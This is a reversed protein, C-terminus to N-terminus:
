RGQGAQGLLVSSARGPLRNEGSLKEKRFEAPLYIWGFDPALLKERFATVEVKDRMLGLLIGARDIEGVLVMGVIRNDKLVLKKYLRKERDLVRLVQYSDDAPEYLGASVIPLNFYKLSNMAIGGPYETELGAMNYGAVRGGLYANPWIPIVRNIGYIFDFAEAVDGCAYVDPSSTTMRRDVVIGRNVQIPTGSALETRPIVGIAVVLIDCSLIEGSALTVGGVASENEPRGLIRQVTQGTLVKVGADALAAQTLLASDQDLITNLVWDKLEIVTVEIGRKILAETVSMGILGGGIVVATRADPLAAAIREADGLTTFTFIGSKGQGEMKPVFPVGGTALLLKDWSQLEGDELKVQKKELDLAVAKRGLIAQIHNQEYFDQPRYLMDKMTSKGALYESIRPRSYVQYPEDSIVALSGQRDIGRIAEVAGVAGVSNGIILYRAM